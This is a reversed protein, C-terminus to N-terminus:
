ARPPHFLATELLLEPQSTSAVFGAVGRTSPLAVDLAQSPLSAAAACTQARTAPTWPCDGGSDDADRGPMGDHPSPVEHAQTVGDGEMDMAPGCRSAWVSGAISLTMATIAFTGALLRNRRRM